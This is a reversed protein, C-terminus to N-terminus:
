KDIRVMGESTVVTEFIIPTRTNQESMSEASLKFRLTSSDNVEPEFGVKVNVLRPEYKQIIAKMIEELEEAAASLNEGPFNTLDPMGYDDAILVSGQRTNLIKRLHQLISLVNRSADKDALEEPSKELNRIRELLTENNMLLIFFVNFDPPSSNYAM